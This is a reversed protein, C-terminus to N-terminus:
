NNDVLGEGGRGGDKITWRWLDRGQGNVAVPCVAPRHLFRARGWLPNKPKANLFKSKLNKTTPEPNYCKHNLTKKRHLVKRTQFRQGEWHRFDNLENRVSFLSQRQRSPFTVSVPPLPLPPRVPGTLEICGTFQTGSHTTLSWSVDTWHDVIEEVIQPVALSRDAGQCARFIAGSNTRSVLVRSDARIRIM